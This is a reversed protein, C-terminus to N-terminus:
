QRQKIFPQPTCTDASPCVECDHAIDPAIEDWSAKRFGLRQYFGHSPTCAVLRLEGYKELAVDMLVTGVDYGQWSRLVAVPYVYAHQGGPGKGAGGELDILKIRIFGVPLDEHNVAVLTNEADEIVPMDVDESIIDIGQLDDDCAERISFLDSYALPCMHQSEGAKM